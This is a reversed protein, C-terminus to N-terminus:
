DLVGVTKKRKWEDMNLCAWGDGM